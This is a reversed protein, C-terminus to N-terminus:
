AGSDERRNALFADVSADPRDATYKRALARAHAVT